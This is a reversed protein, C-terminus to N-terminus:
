YQKFDGKVLFIFDPNPSTSYPFQKYAYKEFDRGLLESYYSKGTPLYRSEFGCKPVGQANDKGFPIYVKKMNNMRVFQKGTGIALVTDYWDKSCVYVLKKQWGSWWNEIFYFEGLPVLQNDKLYSKITKFPYHSENYAYAEKYSIVPEKKKEKYKAIRNQSDIVFGSKWRKDPNLADYFEHRLNAYHNFRKARRIYESFVEDVNKGVNAGFFHELDKWSLYGYYYKRDYGLKFHEHMGLHKFDEREIEKRPFKRKWGSRGHHQLGFEIM